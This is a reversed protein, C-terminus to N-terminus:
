HKQVEPYYHRLALKVKFVIGEWFRLFALVPSSYPFSIMYHLTIQILYIIVVKLIEELM